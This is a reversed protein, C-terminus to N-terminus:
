NQGQQATYAVPNSVASVAVANTLQDLIMLYIRARVPIDVIAFLGSGAGLLMSFSQSVKSSVLYPLCTGAIHKPRVLLRDEDVMMGHGKLWELLANWRQENCDTLGSNTM